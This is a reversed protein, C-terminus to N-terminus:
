IVQVGDVIIIYGIVQLLLGVDLRNDTMLDTQLLGLELVM